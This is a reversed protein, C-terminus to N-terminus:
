RGDPEVAERGVGSGLGGFLVHPLFRRCSDFEALELWYRLDLRYSDRYAL